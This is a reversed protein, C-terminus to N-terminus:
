SRSEWITDTHVHGQMRAEVHVCAGGRVQQRVIIRAAAGCIDRLMEVEKVHCADVGLLPAWCAM